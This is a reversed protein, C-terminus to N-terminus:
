ENLAESIKAKVLEANEKLKTFASSKANAIFTENNFVDIDVDKEDSVNKENLALTTGIFIALLRNKRNVSIDKILNNKKVFELMDTFQKRYEDAKKDDEFLKNKENIYNDLYTNVHGEFEMDESFAFYKVLFEEKYARLEDYSSFESIENLISNGACENYIFEIFKGQKAQEKIEMNKLMENGANIREFIDHRIDTMDKDTDFVVISRISINNIKRKRSSSFENFTIGNLNEIKKLGKLKLKNKLFRDITRIRQSGDIIELAGEDEAFFMPPVPLGLLLSEIFKSQRKEDWVFRRQYFPIFIETQKNGEINRNFKSVLLELTFEKTDYNISKRRENILIDIHESTPEAM